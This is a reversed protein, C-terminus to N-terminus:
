RIPANQPVATALVMADPRTSVPTTATVSWTMRQASSPPVMQFRIVQHRPRGDEEDCAKIPPNHPAARAPASLLQAAKIQDSDTPSQVLFWPRNHFTRSGMTVEGTAPKVRPTTMITSNHAIM